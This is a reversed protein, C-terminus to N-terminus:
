RALLKDVKKTQARLVKIKVNIKDRKRESLDEASLRKRYGQEREVLLVRLKELDKAKIHKKGSYQEKLAALRGKLKTFKM